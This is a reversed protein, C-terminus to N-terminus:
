FVGIEDGFMNSSVLVGYEQPNKVLWMCMADINTEWLDIGPYDQAVKRTIVRCSIAIDEGASEDFKGMKPNHKKM